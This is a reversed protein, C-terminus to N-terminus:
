NSGIIWWDSGDSIIRVVEKNTSITYTSGSAEIDDTGANLEVIGNNIIKISYVRGKCSNAAPLTLIIANALGSANNALIVNYSNDLTTNASATQIKWGMSANIEFDSKPTSTGIGVKGDNDIIMAETGAVDFKIKDEDAAEEVQIKTDNDADTIEDNTSPAWETNANDWKLVEGDNPATNDVDNGQLKNANWMSTSANANLLGGSLSLGTGPNIELEGGGTFTLGSNASYDVSTVTGTIDIGDGGTLVATLDDSAIWESNANDWKLIQGDTPNLPNDIDRGQLKNSNWMATSATANLLGGSLTLGTGANVELQGGSFTLGSNATPDVKITTGTIDIGDGATYTTNNDTTAIWESNANDWKLIQGDTPNLPNDIDRGQLKNSNWMATSATANLLGGSLTLGVGPNVELQGGSFTLGSNATPDVKITTGTIDIGDGATYTTNNDTTAIWESNANDWKLIQGDTPNLPNDIDRGQLKNSNWMATSATANLLGGSLTLGVGPNVELQGGSFTLGSNATPDVKITTGTIDIGD